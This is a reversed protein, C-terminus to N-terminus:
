IYYNDGLIFSIETTSNEVAEELADWWVQFEAFIQYTILLFLFLILASLLINILINTAKKFNSWSWWDTIYLYWAVIVMIVIIVWYIWAFVRAVNIIFESANRVFSESDAALYYIFDVWKIILLAVVVNILWKMLKKWKEWEGAAIVKFWTVVIMIIALFFAFAKIASLIVFLVSWKWIFSQAVWWIGTQNATFEDYSFHLVNWFLRNAAYIFVWWLLIYALSSIDKKSEEPKKNFLLSAWTRIIFIIMIWLSIDRITKYLDNAWDESPYFLYIINERLTHKRSVNDWRDIVYWPDTLHTAFDREYQPLKGGDEEWWLFDLWSWFWGGILESVSWAISDLRSAGTFNWLPHVFWVLTILWFILLYIKRKISSM